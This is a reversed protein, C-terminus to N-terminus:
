EFPGVRWSLDMLRDLRTKWKLKPPTVFLAMVGQNGPTETMLLCCTSQKQICLNVKLTRGLYEAITEPLVRFQRSSDSSSNLLPKPPAF